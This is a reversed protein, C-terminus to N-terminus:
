EIMQGVLFGSDQNAFPGLPGTSTLIKLIVRVSDVEASAAIRSEIIRIVFEMRTAPPWTKVIFDRAGNFPYGVGITASHFDDARVAIAVETMHKFAFLEGFFIRSMADIRQGQLEVGVV